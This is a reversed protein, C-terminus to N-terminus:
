SVRSGTPPEADAQSCTVCKKYAKKNFIIFLCDLNQPFSTNRKKVYTRARAHTYIYVAEVATTYATFANFNM